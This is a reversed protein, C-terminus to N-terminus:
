LHGAPPCGPDKNLSGLNALHRPRTLPLIEWSVPQRFRTFVWYLARYELQSKAVPKVSLFVTLQRYGAVGLGFRSRFQTGMRDFPIEMVWEIPLKSIPFSAVRRTLDAPSCTMNLVRHLFAPIDTGPNNGPATPWQGNILIYVM